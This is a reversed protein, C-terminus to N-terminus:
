LREIENSGNYGKFQNGNSDELFSEGLMGRGTKKVRVTNGYQDRVTYETGIPDGEVLGKYMETALHGKAFDSTKMIALILGLLAGGIAGYIMFNWMMDVSFCKGIIAGIVGFILGYIIASGIYGLLIKFLYYAGVIVAIAVIAGLIVMVTEM